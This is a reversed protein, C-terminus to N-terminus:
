NVEILHLHSLFLHYINGYHLFTQLRPVLLLDLIVVFLCLILEFLLFESCLSM